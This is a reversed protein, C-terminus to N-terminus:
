KKGGKNKERHKRVSYIRIIMWLFLVSIIMGVALLFTQIGIKQSTNYNIIYLYSIVLVGVAVTMAMCEIRLVDGNKLSLNGKYFLMPYKKALVIFLPSAISFAAALGIHFIILDSKSMWGNPNGSFDFHSVVVDPLKDYYYFSTILMFILLIFPLVVYLWSIQPMTVKKIEGQEKESKRFGLEEAQKVARMWAPIIPVITALIFCILFPVLENLWLSLALLVTSSAIMLKGYYRQIEKWLDENMFTYGFRLGIWLNPGIKPILAFILFGIAIMMISLEVGILIM